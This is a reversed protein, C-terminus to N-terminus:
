FSGSVALFDLSGEIYEITVGNGVTHSGQSTGSIPVM